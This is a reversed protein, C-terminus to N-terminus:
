NVIDKLQVICDTRQRGMDINDGKEEQDSAKCTEFLSDNSFGNEIIAMWDYYDMRDYENNIENSKANSVSQQASKKDSGAYSLLLPSGGEHGISDFVTTHPQQDHQQNNESKPQGDKLALPENINSEVSADNSSCTAATSQRSDFIIEIDSDFSVDEMDQDNSGICNNVETGNNEGSFEEKLSDDDSDYITICEIEEDVQKRKIGYFSENTPEIKIKTKSSSAFTNAPTALSISPKRETSKSTVETSTGDIFENSSKFGPSTM